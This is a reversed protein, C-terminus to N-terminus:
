AVSRLSWGWRPDVVGFRVCQKALFSDPVPALKCCFKIRNHWLHVALTKDTLRAEVVASPEFIDEAAQYPNPYFVEIPSARETLRHQHAFYTIARPGTTGWPLSALDRDNGVIAKARQRLKATPSWWPVIIPKAAIMALFDTLIASDPPLKLVANNITDADEWGFIYDSEPIPKLLLVDCDIYCGRGLKQLMLRFLNAGLAFSKERKYKIMMSEPMVERADRLSVGPPANGIPHYSYLDVPHGMAVASALCVRELYTLDGGVWLANLRMASGM